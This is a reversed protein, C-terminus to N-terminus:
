LYNLPNVKTGNVIVEFHLHSGTSYGTSGVLGIAQGRNVRQGAKVLLVSAHGYRTQVGNGHDIVISKGYGGDWGSSVVTGDAPAYFTDGTQGDIDLGPHFSGWRRGFGSTIPGRLPWVLGGVSGSGRSSAVAVRTSSPGKAIVQNVPNQKINESLITKESISGNRSTFRFSVLKEGDNGQTVTKTQGPSISPDTKYVTTFPIVENRSQTGKVVVDFYPVVKVIDIKQGIKLLNQEGLSPNDDLLEKIRMDNKRAITWLTDGQQIQYNITNVKGKILAEAIKDAQNVQEPKIDSEVVEVKPDFEVTEITKQEVPQAFTDKVKQLVGEAEAQSGLVFLGQGKVAISYGKVFAAVKDNLAKLAANESDVEYEKARIPVFLVEDQTFAKQGVAKGKETLVANFITQAQEKTKLVAVRQGNVQIAVAASARYLYVGLGTLDLALALALLVVVPSKFNIRRRFAKNEVTFKSAFNIIGSYTHKILKFM